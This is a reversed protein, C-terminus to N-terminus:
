SLTKQDRTWMCMHHHLHLPRAKNRVHSGQRAERPCPINQLVPWGIANMFVECIDVDASTYGVLQCGASV